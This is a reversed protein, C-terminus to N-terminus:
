GRTNPRHRTHHKLVEASFYYVLEEGINTCLDSIRELNKSIRIIDLGLEISDKGAKIREIVQVTMSRNLADISDDRELIARALTQNKEVYSEIADQLMSQTLKAMQALDRYGSWDQSALRKASEAVNVTHDGIRELESTMRQATMLFRLDAAMPQHLALYSVVRNDIDSEREDIGSDMAMAKDAADVDKDVLANVACNLSKEVERAMELLITKLEDLGASREM